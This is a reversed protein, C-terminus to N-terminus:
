SGIDEIQANVARRFALPDDISKFATRVGGTGNVTVTGCNLARGIIGQDVTLSEVKNLNLEVTYRSIFGKKAIVRKDTVALETSVRVVYPQLWLLVVGGFMVAAGQWAAMVLFPLIPLVIVTMCIAGLYISWHVKAQRIITEGSLLNDKIYSM